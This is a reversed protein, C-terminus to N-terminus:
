RNESDQFSYVKEDFDDPWRPEYNPWENILIGTVANQSLFFNIQYTYTASM